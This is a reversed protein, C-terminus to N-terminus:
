NNCTQKTKWLVAEGCIYINIKYQLRKEKDLGRTQDFGLQQTMVDWYGEATRLLASAESSKFSGQSGWKVCFRASELQNPFRQDTHAERVKLGAPIDRMLSVGCFIGTTHKVCHKACAEPLLEFCVKLLLGQLGQRARACSADRRSGFVELHLGGREPRRGKQLLLVKM